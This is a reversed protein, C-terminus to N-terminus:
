VFVMIYGSVSGPSSAGLGLFFFIVRIVPPYWLVQSCLRDKIFLLEEAYIEDREKYACNLQASRISSSLDGGSISKLTAM